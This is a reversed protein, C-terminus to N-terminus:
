RGCSRATRRLAHLWGDRTGVFAIGRQPDVAVGGREQPKTELLELRVLPKQWAVRYLQIPAPPLTTEVGPGTAALALALALPTM